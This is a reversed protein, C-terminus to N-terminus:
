LTAGADPIPDDSRLVQPGVYSPFGCDLACVSLPGPMDCDHSAYGCTPAGTAVGDIECELQCTDDVISGFNWTYTHGDNCTYRTFPGVCFSQGSACAGYDVDVTCSFSTAGDAGSDADPAGADGSGADPAGAEGSGADNGTAADADVTDGDKVVQQGVYSPFPCDLPCVVLPDNSDCDHSGYSCTPGVPQGDIRCELQCMGDRLSGFEWGYAHGDSCVYHTFPGSCFSLGSACAGYNIERECTVPAPDVGTDPRSTGADVGPGNGGDSDETRGADFEVDPVEGGDAQGATAELLVLVSFHKLAIRAKNGEVTAPGLIKWNKDNEDELWGVVLREKDGKAIPLEIEVDKLFTTGHPTLVYPASAVHYEADVKKVLATAETDPPRKMNIELDKDLAGAPISLAAGTKLTLEAPESAKVLLSKSEGKSAGDDIKFSEAEGGEADSCATCWAFAVVVAASRLAHGFVLEKV